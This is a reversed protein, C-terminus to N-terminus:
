LALDLLDDGFVRVHWPIVRDRHNDAIGASAFQPTGRSSRLNGNKAIIVCGPMPQPSVCVQGDVFKALVLQDVEARSPDDVEELRRVTAVDGDSGEDIAVGDASFDAEAAL